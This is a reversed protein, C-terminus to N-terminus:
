HTSIFLLVTDGPRSFDERLLTILHSSIMTQTTSTVPPDVNAFVGNPPEPTWELVNREEYRRREISYRKFLYADTVAFRSDDIGPGRYNSAVLLARRLPNRAQSRTVVPMPPPASFHQLFTLFTRSSIMISRSMTIEDLVHNSSGGLSVTSDKDNVGGSTSTDGDINSQPFKLGGLVIACDNISRSM